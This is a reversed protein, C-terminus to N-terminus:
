YLFVPVAKPESRRKRQDVYSVPAFLALLQSARVHRSHVIVDLKVKLIDKNAWLSACEPASCLHLDALPLGGVRVCELDLVLQLKIITDYNTYATYLEHISHIAKSSTNGRACLRRWRHYCQPHISYLLTIYASAAGTARACVSVSSWGLGFDICHWNWICTYFCM